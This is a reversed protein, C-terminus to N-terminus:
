EYTYLRKGATWVNYLWKSMYLYSYLRCPTWFNTDYWRPGNTTWSVLWSFHLEMLIICGQHVSPFIIKYQKMHLVCETTEQGVTLYLDHWINSFPYFIILPMKLPLVQPRNQCECPSVVSMWLLSWDAYSSLHEKFETM